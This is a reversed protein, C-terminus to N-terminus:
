EEPPNEARAIGLFLRKLPWIWLLGLGIYAALEAWLPLRPWLAMVSVAAVIYAPLGLFLALLAWRVRAARSLRPRGNKQNRPSQPEPAGM